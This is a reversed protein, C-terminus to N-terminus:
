ISQLTNKILEEDTPKGLISLYMLSGTCKLPFSYGDLTTICQSGGVKVFKDNVTNKHWEIQGSSHITHGKGYYANENMIFNVYGHNTKVLAACQVIDLGNIQHQDIVTVTCKRSSKSLVKVDSGALGCIVGRDVLSGHQAQNEQAVHYFLHIHVSNISRQPTVDSSPSTMVNYAQLANNM